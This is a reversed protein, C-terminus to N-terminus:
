LTFRVAEMTACFHQTNGSIDTFELRSVGSFSQGDRSLRIDTRIDMLNALFGNADFLQFTYRSQFDRGGIRKWVGHGPSRASPPSRSGTESVTGGKHFTNLAPFPNPGFPVMPTATCDPGNQRVTVEVNWAGIISHRPRDDPQNGFTPNALLMLAAAAGCITMVSLKM